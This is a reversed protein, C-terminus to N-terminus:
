FKKWVSHGTKDFGVQEGSGLIEGTKEDITVNALHGNPSIGFIIIVMRSDGVNAM